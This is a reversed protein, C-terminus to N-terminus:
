DDKFFKTQALDDAAHDMRRESQKAEELQEREQLKEAAEREKHAKEYAVRAQERANKAVDLVAVRHEEAKRERHSVDNRLRELYSACALAQAAKTPPPALALRYREYECLHKAAYRLDCLRTQEEEAKECASAAEDYARRAEKEATRRLDLLNELSSTMPTANRTQLIRSVTSWIAAWTGDLFYRM